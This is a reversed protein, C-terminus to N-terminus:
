QIPKETLVDSEKEPALTKWLAPHLNVTKVFLSVRRRPPYVRTRLACGRAVMPTESLPQLIIQKESKLKVRKTASVPLNFALSFDLAILTM